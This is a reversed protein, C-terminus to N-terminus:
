TFAVYLTLVEARLSALGFSEAVSGITDAFLRTVIASIASSAPTDMGVTELTM